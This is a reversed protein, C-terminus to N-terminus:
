FGVAHLSQAKLHNHWHRYDPMARQVCNWFDPSHNAHHLHCLEHVFVYELCRYDFTPLYLSLWIRRAAPNCTGFRTRMKKIRIDNAYKGVIPQWKNALKPIATILAHHYASRQENPTCFQWPKGWLTSQPPTPKPINAHIAWDLRAKIHQALLSTPLTTPYSVMLLDSRRRFNIHKVAKPTLQLRINHALLQNALDDLCTNTM